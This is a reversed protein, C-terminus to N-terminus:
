GGDGVPPLQLGTPAEDTETQVDSHRAIPLRIIFTTGKGPATEFRIAGGHGEVIRRTIALGLGTGDPKTTFFPDFIRDIIEPAIGDGDDCVRIRAWAPADPDDDAVV